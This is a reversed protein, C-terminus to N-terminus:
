EGKRNELNSFIWARVHLAEENNLRARPMMVPLIKDWGAINLQGPLPISHCRGCRNVFIRHGLVTDPSVTLRPPYVFATKEVPEGKRETILPLGKPQCSM